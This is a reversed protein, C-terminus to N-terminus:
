SMLSSYELALETLHLRSAAKSGAGTFSLIASPECQLASVFLSMGFLMRMFANDNLACKDIHIIIWPLVSSSTQEGCNCRTKKQERNMM